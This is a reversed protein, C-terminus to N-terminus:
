LTEKVPRMAALMRRELEALQHRFREPDRAHIGHVLLTPPDERLDLALTGPTLTVLSALVVLELRTRCQSRLAVIGPALTSGPTVVEWAVLVNALLFQYVYWVAFSVVRRGRVLFRRVPGPTPMM